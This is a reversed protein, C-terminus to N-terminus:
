AENKSLPVTMEGGQEDRFIRTEGETKIYDLVQGNHRAISPYDAPSSSWKGLYFDYFSVSGDGQTKEEDEIVQIWGHSLSLIWPFSNAYFYGFWSSHYWNDPTHEFDGFVRRVSEDLQADIAIETSQSGVTPLEGLGLQTAKVRLKYAGAEAPAQFHFQLGEQEGPELRYPVPLRHEALIDQNAPNIVELCLHISGDAGHRGIFQLPEHHLNKLNCGMEVCTGPLLPGDPTVLDVQFVPDAGCTLLPQGPGKADEQEQQFRELWAESQPNSLKRLEPVPISGDPIEAGVAAFISKLTGPVDKIFDEYYLRMPEVGLEHCVAELDEENQLFNKVTWQILDRQYYPKRAKVKQLQTSHWVGSQMAKLLSIGQKVKDKRRIEIFVADPFYRNFFEPLSNIGEPWEKGSLQGALWRLNDAFIKSAFRGNPSSGEQVVYPLWKELSETPSQGERRLLEAVNQPYFLEGPRGIQDMKKLIEMLLTSGSRHTAMFFVPKNM